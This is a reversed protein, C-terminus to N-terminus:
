NKNNYCKYKKNSYCKDKKTSLNNKFIITKDCKNVSSDAIVNLNNSNDCYAHALIGVIIKKPTLIIKVKVNVYKIIVNKIQIVQQVTSNANVFVHYINQGQKLKMKTEKPVCIKPSLVSYNETYKNVSIMFQYYKVEVVNM